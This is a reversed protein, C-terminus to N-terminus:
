NVPAFPDERGAPIIGTAPSFVSSDPIFKLAKFIESNLFDIDVEVSVNNQTSSNSITGANGGFNIKSLGFYGIFIVLVILIFPAAKELVSKEKKIEQEEM